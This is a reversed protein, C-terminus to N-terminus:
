RNGYLVLERISTILGIEPALKAIDNNALDIIELGQLSSPLIQEIKNSNARLIRLSPVLDPLNEPLSTITNFNIILETLKPFSIQDSDDATITSLRNHSIDLTKLSAFVISSTLSLSEIKNHDLKLNVLTRAFAELSTPIRTLQNHSLNLTVPHSTLLSSDVDNLGKRSLDLTGSAKPVEMDVAPEPQTTTSTAATAMGAM